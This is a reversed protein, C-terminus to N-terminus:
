DPAGAVRSRATPRLRSRQRVHPAIAPWAPAAALDADHRAAVADDAHATLRVVVSEGERVPLAPFDNPGADSEYRAIVTAGTAALLEDFAVGAPGADVVTVGVVGPGDGSTGPPPRRDRLAVEGGPSPHLLLVDGVDVMTANAAAAHAKWTPGSYFTELAARRSTMDTFGRLWVFVDPRDPDRFQGLVAMGVAEQTEVLERDFLEILEDRRGPHLVYQRLEVIRCAASTDPAFPM